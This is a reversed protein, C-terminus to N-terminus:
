QNGRLEKRRRRAERRLEKRRRKEERTRERQEQNKREIEIILLEVNDRDEMLCAFREFTAHDFRPGGIMRLFPEFFSVIPSAAIMAQSGVVSLPRHSELFIIAPAAMRREVVWTAIRSLIERDTLDAKESM